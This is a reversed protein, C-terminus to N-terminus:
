SSANWDQGRRSTMVSGEKTAGAEVSWRDRSRAQCDRDILEMKTNSTLTHNCRRATTKELVIWLTAVRGLTWSGKLM